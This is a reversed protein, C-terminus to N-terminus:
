KRTKFALFRIKKGPTVIMQHPTGAPIVFYDGARMPMATGGTISTGRTEGPATVKANAVTGGVMFTAEGEQVVMNDTWDDHIEAEGSKERATNMVRFTDTRTFVVESYVADPTLGKTIQAQIEKGDLRRVAKDDGATIQALAPTAALLLVAALTQKLM